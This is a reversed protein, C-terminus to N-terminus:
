ATKQALIKVHRGLNLKAFSEYIQELLEEYGSDILIDEFNKRLNHCETGVSPTEVYNKGMLLFIDIQIALINSAM